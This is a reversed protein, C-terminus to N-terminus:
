YLGLGWSWIDTRADVPLGRGQEPSMYSVTGMVIGPNTKLLARTAGEADIAFAPRETLKALGFDLVKLYADHRVMINEPKIDRHVIGAAHAAALAEGIQVALDLIERLKLPPSPGGDPAMRSATIHERLTVGDIFESAIFHHRDAKGIEYITVINPHNLSSAARAEQEFRRLRNADKTFYDPLLKLAIKRGLRPDEALYVEGMGGAGLSGVIKYPGIEQGATMGARGNVLLEAAIQSVPTELFNSADEHSAILSEVERHLQEDGACAQVLFASRERPARALASQLLEDIQQWREPKM